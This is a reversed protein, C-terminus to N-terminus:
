KIRLHYLSSYRLPAKILYSRKEIGKDSYVSKSGIKTSSLGFYASFIPVLIPVFDYESFPGLKHNFFCTALKTKRYSDISHIFWIFRRLRLTERVYMGPVQHWRSPPCAWAFCPPHVLMHMNYPINFMTGLLICQVLFLINKPGVSGFGLGQWCCLRLESM